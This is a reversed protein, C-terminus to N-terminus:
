GENRNASLRLFHEPGTRFAPKRIGQYVHIHAIKSNDNFFHHLEKTSEVLNDIKASSFWCNVHSCFVFYVTEECLEMGLRFDKADCIKASTFLVHVSQCVKWMASRGM